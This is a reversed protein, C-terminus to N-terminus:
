CTRPHCHGCESNKGELLMKRPKVAAMVSTCSLHRTTAHRSRRHRPIGALITCCVQIMMPTPKFNTHPAQELNTTTTSTKFNTCAVLPASIKVMRRISVKAARHAVFSRSHTRHEGLSTPPQHHKNQFIHHHINKKRQKVVGRCYVGLRAKCTTGRAFM